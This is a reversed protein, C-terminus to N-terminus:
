RRASANKLKFGRRELMEIVAMDVLTKKSPFEAKNRLSKKLFGEAEAIVWKSIKVTTEGTVM